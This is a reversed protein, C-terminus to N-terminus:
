EVVLELSSSCCGQERKCTNERRVAGCHRAARQSASVQRHNQLYAEMIYSWGKVEKGQIKDIHETPALHTPTLTCLCHHSSRHM